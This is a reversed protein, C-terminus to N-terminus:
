GLKSLQFLSSLGKEGKFSPGQSQPPASLEWCGGSGIHREQERSILQLQIPQQSTWKVQELHIVDSNFKMGLLLFHSQPAM